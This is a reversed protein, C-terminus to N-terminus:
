TQKSVDVLKTAAIGPNEPLVLREKYYVLRISFNQLEPSRKPFFCPRKTKM